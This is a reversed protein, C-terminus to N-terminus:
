AFQEGRPQGVREALADAPPVDDPWPLQAAMVFTTVSEADAM